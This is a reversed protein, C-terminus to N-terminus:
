GIRQDAVRLRQGPQACFGIDVKCIVPGHDFAIVGQLGADVDTTHAVIKQLSVDVGGRSGEVEGLVLGRRRAGGCEVARDGPLGIVDGANEEVNGKPHPLVGVAGERAEPLGPEEEKDGVLPLDSMLQGDIEAQAILQVRRGSGALRAAEDAVVRRVIM